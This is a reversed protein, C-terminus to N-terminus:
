ITLEAALANTNIFDARPQVQDGMLIQFFDDSGASAIDVNLLIRNEPDMTTEWLVNPPMEGLGKFRSITPTIRKDENEALVQKLQEDNFAWITKKGIKIKYLPPQAVYLYGGLIIEPFHRFFLTMLLTRIHAGDVDADCMIVIKHYRLRKLDISSTGITIGLAAIITQIEVNKLITKMAAKECNLIKGKLPLIAQFKRDRAQKASNHVFIGAALAFNHTGEVEIDYVDAREGKDEVSVLKHNYIYDQSMRLNKETGYLAILDGLKYLSKDGKGKGSGNGGFGQCRAEEYNEIGARNLLALSKTIRTKLLAAKRKERFEPTWQKSTTKARWAKLEPDDWQKKADVRRQEVAEPHKEYYTRTRDSQADRNEQSAWHTKQNENLQLRNQERYEPNNDYFERWKKAMYEKYVEDEWQKKAKASLESSLEKMRESMYARYESTKRTAISTEAHEKLHDGPSMFVINAPDNNLSNKDKHHRHFGKPLEEGNRIKCDASLYHTLQWGGKNPQHIREYSRESGIDHHIYDIVNPMLSSYAEIMSISVYSGDRLMYPHDPTPRIQEGNDLTATVVPTNRKTLWVNKVPRIEILETEHNYSYVHHKVGNKFEKAMQAIPISRGDALKILTEGSHCGGASDGEVLFLERQAPDSVQCDTLKGPLIDVALSAAKRANERARQAALRAKTANIIRDAIAKLVDKKADEFFENLQQYVLQSTVTQAASTGLKAKTQGEFQPQPVRVSVIAVLGERIDDSNPQELSKPIYDTLFKTVARTLGMKFGTLHTGGEITNINNCFSRIEETSSKTWRLAVYCHIGADEGALQIPKPQIEDDKSIANVYDVLGNKSIYMKSKETQNIFVIKLGPNLYSLERLRTAIIKEDFEITEFITDDPWFQIKTGTLTRDTSHTTLESTPTGKAYTQRYDKGDRWVTVDLKNSLANVCSVGVGHLGGSAKYSDENFKGGAHLKTLVVQVAPIGETPHNAVPIGRGNDEVSISGDKHHIIIIETCYGAMAEDISNDVTEWVLHHLGTSSTSGIYMGPRERVPELGELIRISDANYEAM